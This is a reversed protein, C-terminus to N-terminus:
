KKKSNKKKRLNSFGKKRSRITRKRRKGGGEFKTVLSGITNYGDILKCKDPSKQTADVELSDGHLQEGLTKELILNDSPNVPYRETSSLAECLKLTNFTANCYKNSQECINGEYRLICALMIFLCDTTEGIDVIDGGDKDIKSLHDEAKTMPMKGKTAGVIENMKQILGIRKMFGMERTEIMGSSEIKYTVSNDILKSMKSTSTGPGKNYGTKYVDEKGSNGMENYQKLRDQGPSKYLFYYKIHELSTVIGRGQNVIFNTYRILFQMNFLRKVLEEGNADKFKTITNLTPFVDEMQKNIYRYFVYVCSKCRIDTDKVKVQNASPNSGVEGFDDKIFQMFSDSSQDGDRGDKYGNFQNFLAYITQVENLEPEPGVASPPPPGIFKKYTEWCTEQMKKAAETFDMEGKKKEKLSTYYSSAGADEELLKAGKKITEDTSAEIYEPGLGMNNLFKDIKKKIEEKGDDSNLSLFKVTSSGKAQGVTDLQPDNAWDELTEFGNLLMNFDLFLKAGVYAGIKKKAAPKADTSLKYNTMFPEFENYAGFGLLSVFPIPQLNKTPDRPWQPIKKFLNDTVKKTDAHELNNKCFITALYDTWTLPQPDLRSTPQLLKPSLTLRGTGNDKAYPDIIIDPRKPKMSITDDLNYFQKKIEITNETGAMDVVCFKNKAGDEKWTFEFEYFLHSRSSEANNPTPSIRMTNYRHLKVRADIANFTNPDESEDSFFKVLTIKDGKGSGVNIINEFTGGGKDHVPLDNEFYKKGEVRGKRIDNNDEPEAFTKEEYPYLECMSFSINKINKGEQDDDTLYRVVRQLISKDAEEEKKKPLGTILQYTKGSGSFGFGFTIVSKKMKLKEIADEFSHEVVDAISVRMNVPRDLNLKPTKEVGDNRLGFNTTDSYIQNYPGSFIVHPEKPHALVFPDDPKVGLGPHKEILAPHGDLVELKYEGNTDKGIKGVDRNLVNAIEINNAKTGKAEAELAQKIGNEPSPVGCMAKLPIYCYNHPVRKGFNEKNQPGTLLFLEETNKKYKKGPNEATGDGDWKDMHKDKNFFYDSTYKSNVVIVVSASGLKMSIFTARANRFAEAAAHHKHVDPNNGSILGEKGLLAKQDPLLNIAFPNGGEDGILSTFYDEEKETKTSPMKECMQLFINNDDEGGKLHNLVARFGDAGNMYTDEPVDKGEEKPLKSYTNYIYKFFDKSNDKLPDTTRSKAVSIIDEKKTELDTTEKIIGDITDTYGKLETQAETMFKKADEEGDRVAKIIPKEFFTIINDYVTQGDSAIGDAKKVLATWNDISENDGSDEVAKTETKVGWIKSGGESSLPKNLAKRFAEQSEDFKTKIAAKLQELEEKRKGDAEEAKKREEEKRKKEEAAKAAAAAEARKRNAEAEEAKAQDPICLNNLNIDEDLKSLATKIEEGDNTKDTSECVGSDRERENCKDLKKNIDTSLIDKINGKGIDDLDPLANIDKITQIRKKLADQTLGECDFVGGSQLKLSKNGNKGYNYYKKKKLSGEKLIQRQKRLSLM